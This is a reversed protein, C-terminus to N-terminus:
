MPSTRGVRLLAADQIGLKRCEFSTMKRVADELRLTKKQRVYWAWAHPSLASTARTRTAEAFLAM